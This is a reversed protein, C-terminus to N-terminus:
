NINFFWRDFAYQNAYDFPIYCYGNDGWDPGYSNKAIFWKTELSYGVLTVAHGGFDLVSGTPASVVANAKTLNFFNDFVNFGLIIPKEKNLIELMNNIQYISEYSNIKRPWADVYCDLNPQVSFLTPDYAWLSEKCIGFKQIGKLANRIYLVGQDESDTGELLRAHYYTYLKSLDELNEPNSMNTMLEYASVISSAVCSGLQGQNEIPTDYERLDIFQKIEEGTPKYVYDRSDYKSAKLKFSTM